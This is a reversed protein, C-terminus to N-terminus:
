CFDFVARAFNEEFTEFAYFDLIFEGSQFM